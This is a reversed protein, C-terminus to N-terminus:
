EVPVDVDDGQQWDVLEAHINVEQLANLQIYVKYEFGAKFETPITLTTTQTTPVADGASEPALISLTVQYNAKPQVLLYGAQYCEAGKEAAPIMTNKIVEEEVGQANIMTFTKNEWVKGYDAGLEVATLEQMPVERYNEWSITNGKVSWRAYTALEKMKLDFVRLKTTEERDNYPPEDAGSQRDNAVIYFKLLAMRHEFKINPVFRQKKFVDIAPYTAAETDMLWNHYKISRIYKSNYGDLDTENYVVSGAETGAYLTGQAMTPAIDSKGTILDISGDLDNFEVTVEDDTYDVNADDQRPYYGYFDYKCVPTIPYYYISATGQQQKDADSYLRIRKLATTNGEADPTTQHLDPDLTTVETGKARVNSLLIQSNDNSNFGGERNLAFIGLNDLAVIDTGTIAARGLSVSPTPLGDASLQVVVRGDPSEWDNETVVQDQSPADESTCATMSLAALAWIWLNKKM